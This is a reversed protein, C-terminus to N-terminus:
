PRGARLAPKAMNPIDASVLPIEGDPTIEEADILIDAPIESTGSYKAEASYFVAVDPDQLAAAVEDEYHRM